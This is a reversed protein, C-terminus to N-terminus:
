HLPFMRGPNLLCDPDFAQKIRKHLAQLAADLPHLRQQYEPMGRYLTAHGGAASVTQRLKEPTMQSVLWRQAGGWELLTKGKLDALNATAPVSLRWLPSQTDFFAHRHEKIREWFHDGEKIQEGGMKHHAQTISGETGSLRYYLYETDHCTATIPLPQRRWLTLNQMAQQLNIDQKFTWEAAPKPLVKLSVELLIGLTGFAGTMLRSVDYGAVNKMVEGGFSLIQGQGNIIRCGLMYDRAAGCYPRRPGSLNCALTGGLTANAAYSPPEFALMQGNDALTKVIDSLLTGARATIVLETPEYHLIGQHGSVDLPEAQCANGLFAKTHNGHIAVAQKQSCAQQVKQQLELSIDPM